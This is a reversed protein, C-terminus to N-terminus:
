ESVSRSRSVSGPSPVHPPGPLCALRPRPVLAVVMQPLVSAEGLIRHSESLVGVLLVSWCGDVVLAFVGVM